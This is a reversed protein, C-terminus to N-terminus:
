SARRWKPINSNEPHPTPLHVRLDIMARDDGSTVAQPLQAGRVRASREMQGRVTQSFYTGGRDVLRCAVELERLDGQSSDFVGHIPLTQLALIASCNPQPAVVLVRTREADHEAWVGLLTIIDLDFGRVAVVFLDFTGEALFGAAAAPESECDVRSGPFVRRVTEVIMAGCLRDPDLVLVRHSNSNSAM